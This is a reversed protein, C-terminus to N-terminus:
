DSAGTQELANLVQRLENRLAVLRDPEVDIGCLLRAPIQKAQERLNRGAETLSVTVVREDEQSRQRSIV